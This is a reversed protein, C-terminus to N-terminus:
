LNLRYRLLLIAGFISPVLFNIGWIFTSLAVIMLPNQSFPALLLLLLQGRVVLETLSITPLISICLFLIAVSFVLPVVSINLALMHSVWVYQLLFVFYRVLSLWLLNMKVQTDVQIKNLFSFWGTWNRQYFFVLIAMCGILPSVWKVMILWPGHIIPYLSANLGLAVSGMVITVLLQAYSAWAMKTMGMLKDGIALFLTRGAFEGVRNPTFFAFAQGVFVSEIAKLLSIPNTKYIVLKWKYGELLFNLGLLVWLVLWDLVPITKLQLYMTHLFQNWALNHLVKYYIAISCLLFLLFGISKKALPQISSLFTKYM